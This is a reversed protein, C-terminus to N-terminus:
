VSPSSHSRVATFRLFPKSPKQFRYPRLGRLGVASIEFVCEQRCTLAPM